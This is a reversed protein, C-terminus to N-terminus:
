KVELKEIVDELRDAPLTVRFPAGSVLGFLEVLNTKSKTAVTVMEEKTKPNITKVVAFTALEQGKLLLQTLDYSHNSETADVCAVNGKVEYHQSLRDTENEILTYARAAGELPHRYDEDGMLLKVAWERITDNSMDSKIAEDILAGDLQLEGERTDAIVANIVRIDHAFGIRAACAPTETLTFRNDTQDEDSWGVHHDYWRVLKGRLNRIFNFTMAPDRNNIAIDVVYVEEIDDPIVVQDVLFPQTFVVNIDETEIGLQEALLAASTIGDLDGHAVILIKNNKIEDEKALYIVAFISVLTAGGVVYSLAEPSMIESGYKAINGVLVSLLAITSIRIWPNM